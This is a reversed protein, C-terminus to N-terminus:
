IHISLRYLASRSSSQGVQYMNFCLRFAVAMM